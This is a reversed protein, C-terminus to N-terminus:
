KSRLSFDKNRDFSFDTKSGERKVSQQVTREHNSLSVVFPCQSM